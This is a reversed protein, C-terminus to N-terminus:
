GMMRSRRLEFAEDTRAIGCVQDVSWTFCGGMSAEKAFKAKDSLSWTDDYTVVTTRSQNFLYQVPHLRCKVSLDLFLVFRLTVVTTGVWRIDM